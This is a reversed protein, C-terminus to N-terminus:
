DEEASGGSMCSNILIFGGRIWGERDEITDKSLDKGNQRAVRMRGM